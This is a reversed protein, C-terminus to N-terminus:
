LPNLSISVAWFINWKSHIEPSITSINSKLKSVHINVSHIGFICFSSSLCYVLMLHQYVVDRNEGPKDLRNATSALLCTFTHKAQSSPPSQERITPFNSVAIQVKHVKQVARPVASSLWVWQTRECNIPFVATALHTYIGGAVMCLGTYCLSIAWECCNSTTKLRPIFSGLDKISQTRPYM